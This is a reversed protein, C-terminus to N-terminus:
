EAKSEHRAIREAKARALEEEIEEPSLSGELKQMAERLRKAAQARVLEAEIMSAISADTIPVSSARAREVLEEPLKFTVEVDSM